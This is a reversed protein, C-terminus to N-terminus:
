NRLTKVLFRKPMNAMKVLGNLPQTHHFSKVVDLGGLELNTM